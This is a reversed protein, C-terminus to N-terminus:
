KFGMSNFQASSIKLPATLEFYLSRTTVIPRTAWMVSPVLGPAPLILQWYLFRHLLPHGNPDYKELLEEVRGIASAVPLM